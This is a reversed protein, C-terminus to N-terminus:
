LVMTKSSDVIIALSGWFGRLEKVSTPVPWQVACEVKSIYMAVSGNSIVHGLYKIELTRLNYKSRKAYFRHTRLLHLVEKLHLLHNSWTVSYVLKDEFVM